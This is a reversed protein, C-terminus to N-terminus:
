KKNEIEDIRISAKHPIPKWEVKSFLAIYFSLKGILGFIPFTLCYWVKKYWKIHRIKKHEFVFVYIAQIIESAYSSVTVGFTFFSLWLIAAAPGAPMAEFKMFDFLVRIFKPAYEMLGLFKGTGLILVIRLIYILINRISSLFSLPFVVLLMDYSMFRLRINNFLRKWLPIEQKKSEREVKSAVGGTWFIHWLLKPGTEALAQLHGKAWRIRQRMVIRMDVPQEDYFEAANNYSIKYGRAVADACFARDETLSTYNWGDKIIENTFLFGTGQIRTALHLFSRARHESRITRLWHIAYSASIWNDDFNKTNRYSTIIKEGADFSENMRTIYDNKLLNDADFVFYGEFSEIGYDRRICEVLYQLAFGKTRHETDSREYCIAGHKRAEKATRDTCNDAVVFVTVLESPYDQRNISELLNGIVAEENRAAIMVAYKHLHKAPKFKRTLFFGIIVYATRFGYLSSIVSVVLIIASILWKTLETGDDGKM